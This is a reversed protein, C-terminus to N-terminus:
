SDPKKMGFPDANGGGILHMNMFMFDTAQPLISMWFTIALIYAFYGRYFALPGEEAWIRKSANFFGRYEDHSLMGVGVRSM